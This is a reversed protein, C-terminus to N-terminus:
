LVTPLPEERLISVYPLFLIIITAWHEGIGHPWARDFETKLHWFDTKFYSFETKLHWFEKKLLWFETRL